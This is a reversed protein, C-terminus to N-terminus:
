SVLYKEKLKEAIKLLSERNNENPDDLVVQLLENLVLSITRDRPFGLAILDNGNINLSKVSLCSDDKIAKDIRNKLEIIHSIDSQDQKLGKIDALRLQLLEDINEIGIKSIFKRVTSDRWNSTYQFMHQRVLICVKDVVKNPYKLRRLIKRVIKEGAIEHGYFHICGDDDVTKTCPKAIDHLLGALRLEITAPTNECVLFCHQLVDACHYEGQEVGSALSLEPLIKELVTSEELLKLGIIPSKSLLIKSFEDRIREVSISTIKNALKKIAKGTDKEISFGLQSAFRIARLIRLADENFREEATGVTKILKSNLDAMGAFLDILTYTELSVAMANITFDRRSLDEEISGIFKVNDPHRTDSYSSESRFTTCEFSYGKYLITVTGHKIGSALVRPFLKQVEEPRANTAIDFDKPKKGLCYDRVAGGVLFVQFGKELFVTAVQKLEKPIKFHRM